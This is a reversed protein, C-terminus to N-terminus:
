VGATFLRSISSLMTDFLSIIVAAPGNFLSRLAAGILFDFTGMGLAERPVLGCHFVVVLFACVFRISDLGEVRRVSQAMGNTM